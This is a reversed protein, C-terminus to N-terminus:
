EQRFTNWTGSLLLGGLSARVWSTASCSQRRQMAPAQFMRGPGSRLLSRQQQHPRRQQASIRLQTSATRRSNSLPVPPTAMPCQPKSARHMGTAQTM